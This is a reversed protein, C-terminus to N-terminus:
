SCLQGVNQWCLMLEKKLKQIDEEKTWLKGEKDKNNVTENNPEDVKKKGENHHMMKPNLTLSWLVQPVGTPIRM